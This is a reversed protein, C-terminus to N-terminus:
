VIRLEGALRNDSSMPSILGNTNSRLICVVAMAWSLQVPTACHVFKGQLMCMMRPQLCPLLASPINPGSPLAHRVLRDHNDHWPLCSLLAFTRLLALWNRTPLCVFFLCAVNGQLVTHSTSPTARVLGPSAMPTHVNSASTCQSRSRSRCVGGGGFYM